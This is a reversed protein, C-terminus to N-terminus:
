PRHDSGRARHPARAAARHSTLWRGVWVVGLAGALEFLSVGAFNWAAFLGALARDSVLMEGAVYGLLAAGLMIVVPQRAMVRLLLQSGFVILPVTLTLGTLLLLLRTEPPGSEAAAAVAVVHDLSMVLDAALMTRVAGWLDGPHEVGGDREDDPLWLQVGIWFLLLAGIIKVFPLHLLEFAFLTLVVRMAVAAASGLVVAYARQRAPLHRAALAIVVADDGSLLVSVGMIKGLALWFAADALFQM